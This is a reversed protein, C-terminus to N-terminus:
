CGNPDNWNHQPGADPISHNANRESQPYGLRAPIGPAGSAPTLAPICTRKYDNWVEPNQFLAIYKEIMIDSLSTVTLPTLGLSAREADVFPQAAGAGSLVFSAEALILQNEAYTALPQRFDSRLRADSLPSANASPGDGPIAGVFAGNSNLAFYQGLRPDSLGKLTDVLFKGASLYGPWSNTFQKWLNWETVNSGHYTRFDGAGSPDNIGNAAALLAAQYATTGDREVTHLYFRAKLTHALAAWLTVDGGYVVDEGGPATAAANTANLFLIATDLKAQVAAYVEQQPDLTPEAITSDAAQSYPIDGWADATQGILWAEIVMAVGAYGSDSNERASTQIRRLDLLGGRVYAESWDTFYDDDGLIYLGTAQYQKDTGACQQMWMCITRAMHGESQFTLNTLASVLLNARSATTPRNPNDGLKPGTLFDSCGSTGLGLGLALAVATMRKRM